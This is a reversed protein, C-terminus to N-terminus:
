RLVGPSVILSKEDLRGVTGLPITPNQDIHGFSAGMVVTVGEPVVTEEIIKCLPLNNKLIHDNGNTFSGFVVAKCRKFYGAQRLHTLRRDISYNSEGTDELILIKESIDTEYKTGILSETLTLNGGCIIGECPKFNYSREWPLVCEGGKLVRICERVSFENAKWTCSTLMPGHFTVIGCRQNLISHLVTIDSFGLFIKPNESIRKLDLYECMRACGYGGRLCFIADIDNDCFMRNVDEARVRDTGSLYGHHSFCSEGPIVSYGLRSLLLCYREIIETDCPSSPAVIGITSNDKLYFPKLM